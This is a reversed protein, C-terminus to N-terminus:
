YRLIAAVPSTEPVEDAAVAYVTGDRLFTEVTAVDLLDEDGPRREAHFTVSLDTTHYDGWAEADVAVFLTEIRGGLAERVVHKVEHVTRGRPKLTRYRDVADKRDQEFRPRVLAWARDHLEADDLGEPSSAVSKEALHPYTNADRYMSLVYDVGALVLPSTEGGLLEHIGRDLKKCFEAIEAKKDDRGVAQGHFMAEREGGHGRSRTHFQLTKQHVDFPLAERLSRPADALDMEDMTHLTAQFLRVDHQSLALVYFRGDGSLLPMLPKVYFRDAVEVHEKFDLPLRYAMMEGDSLLVALGGAQHQWFRNDGLLRRAPQLTQVIVTSDADTDELRHEAEQLANKLRIPNQRTEKGRRVTPMYISVAVPGRPELLGRVADRTFLRRGVEPDVQDNPLRAM